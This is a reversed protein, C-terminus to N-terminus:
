QITLAPDLQPSFDQFILFKLLSFHMHYARYYLLYFMGSGMRMALKEASVDDEARKLWIIIVRRNDWKLWSM